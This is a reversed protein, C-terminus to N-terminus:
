KYELINISGERGKIKWKLIVLNDSGILVVKQKKKIYFNYKFLSNEAEFSILPTIWTCIRIQSNSRNEALIELEFLKEVITNMNILIKEYFDENIWYIVSIDNGKFPEIKKFLYFIEKKHFDSDYKELGSIIMKPIFDNAKETKFKIKNIVTEGVFLSIFQKYNLLKLKFKPIIKELKVNKINTYFLKDNKKFLINQIEISVPININFVNKTKLKKFIDIKIISESINELNPEVSKNKVIKKGLIALIEIEGTSYLEIEIKVNELFYIENKNDNKKAEFLFTENRDLFVNKEGSFEINKILFSSEEYKLYEVSRFLKDTYFKYCIGSKQYDESIVYKHISEFIKKWNKETIMDFIKCKIYNKFELNTCDQISLFTKLFYMSALRKFGKEDLASALKYFFYIRENYSYIEINIHKLIFLIDSFIMYELLDTVLHIERQINRFNKIIKVINKINEINLYEIKTLKYIQSFISIEILNYKLDVFGKRKALKFGIRIVDDCMKLLNLKIYIEACRLYFFEENYKDKKIDAILKSIYKNLYIILIKKYEESSCEEDSIISIQEEIFVVTKNKYFSYIDIKNTFSTEKISINTSIFEINIYDSNEFELESLIAKNLNLETYFIKKIFKIMRNNGLHLIKISNRM